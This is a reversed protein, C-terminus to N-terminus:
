QHCNWACHRRHGEGYVYNDGSGWAGPKSRHLDLDGGHVDMRGAWDSHGHHYKGAASRDPKSSTATSPGGNTVVQTYTIVNGAQVPVPAATNTVSLDASDIVYTGVTVANNGTNPDGTTSSVTDTESLNTGQAITSPVSVVLTFATTTTNAALNTGDTCTLTALTCTWGAPGTLSSATTGTPLTEVLKPTTAAHPGANTVTQTYTVTSGATVSTPGSNTVSLDAQAASTVAINVTATNNNTNTENTASAVTVTDTIITGAATGAAVKYVVTVTGTSGPPVSPNTCSVPASNPCTWTGGGTTVVAASVFSTNAPTPETLTATSCNSPGNNTVVQTYTINNGALVPSPTGANTVALDCRTGVGTIVTTSNNSLIPDPTTATVSSNATVPGGATSPPVNVVIVIDAATGSGLNATDNCVVNGTSGVAPSTCTWGAPALVSEFTTNTPVPETFSVGAAAALGNNTITQTYTISNGAIVDWPSFATSLAVDAQTATAVVDTATASNSGFAQNTSNVTVTNSIITGSATGANVM